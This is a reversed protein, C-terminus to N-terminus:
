DIFIIQYTEQWTAVGKLVLSLIFKNTDVFFTFSYIYHNKSLQEIKMFNTVNKDNPVGTIVVTTKELVNNKPENLGNAIIDDTNNFM